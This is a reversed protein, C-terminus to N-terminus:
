DSCGDSWLKSCTSVEQSSTARFKLPCNCLTLASAASESILDKPEEPKVKAEILEEKDTINYQIHTGSAKQIQVPM